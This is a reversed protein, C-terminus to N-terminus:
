SLTAYIELQQGLIWKSNRKNYSVEVKIWTAFLWALIICKDAERPVLSAM